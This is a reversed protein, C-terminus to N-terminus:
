LEDSDELTDCGCNHRCQALLAMDYKKRMTLKVVDIAARADRLDNELRAVKGALEHNRKVLFKRYDDRQEATKVRLLLEEVLQTATMQDFIDDWDHREGLTYYHEQKETM